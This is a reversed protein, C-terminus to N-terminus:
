QLSFRVTLNYFVAVPSGNRLAPRFKWEQTALVATETLGLPLGKLVRIDAVNGLVDIIAELIVVGQIRGQRAEETYLPVGGALKVPPTVDGGVQFPRGAGSARSPPGDPIFFDDIGVDVIDSDPLRIELEQLIPEPDDPTPDPIPIRKVAKRPKPPAQRTAPEPAKFRLQRVAFVAREPAKWDPRQPEFSFHLMFLVAHLAIAAVIARRMNRRERAENVELNPVYGLHIRIAREPERNIRKWTPSNDFM